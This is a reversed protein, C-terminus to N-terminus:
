ASITRHIVERIKRAAAFRNKELEDPWQARHRRPRLSPSLFKKLADGSSNPTM